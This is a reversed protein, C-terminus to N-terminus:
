HRRVAKIPAVQSALVVVRHTDVGYPTCSVLALTPRTYVANLLRVDTPLVVQMAFVRYLHAQGGRTALVLDGRRLLGLNRFIQGDIDDHGSMLTLGAQGLNVSRALRTTGYAPVIDYGYSGDANHRYDRAWVPAGAIGLRRIWLRGEPKPLPRDQKMTAWPAAAQPDAFRGTLPQRLYHYRTVYHYQTLYRVVVRRRLVVREVTRVRTLYRYRTTTVLRHHVRTVVHERLRVRTAVRRRTVVRVRQHTVVRVHLRTVVRVHLRVVDRTTTLTVDRLHVRTLLLRHTRTVHTIRLVTRTLPTATPRTRRRPESTYTAQPPASPAAVGTPAPLLLLVPAPPAPAPVVVTVIVDTPTPGATTLPAPTPAPGPVAPTSTAPASPTATATAAPTSTPLPTAMSPLRVAFLTFHDVYATLTSADPDLVTPLTVWALALPDYYSLRLTHPDVGLALLALPDYAVVLTLPQAFTHVAQGNADHASLDFGSGLPLSDPADPLAPSLLASVTLPGSAAGAPLTLTLAALPAPLLSAYM